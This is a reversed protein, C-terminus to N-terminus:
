DDSAELSRLRALHEEVKFEYYRTLVADVKNWHHGLFNRMETETPLTDMDMAHQLAYPFVDPLTMTVNELKM